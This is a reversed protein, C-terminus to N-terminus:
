DTIYDMFNDTYDDAHEDEIYELFEAEATESDCNLKAFSQSSINKVIVDKNDSKKEFFYVACVIGAFVAAAALAPRLREFLNIKKGQKVVVQKDPLRSMMKDTFNEFYGEPVRFPNRYKMKELIENNNEM